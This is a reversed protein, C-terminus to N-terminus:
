GGKNQQAYAWLIRVARILNLNYWKQIASVVVRGLPQPDPREHFIVVVLPGQLKWRVNKAGYNRMVWLGPVSNLAWRVWAEDACHLPVEAWGM